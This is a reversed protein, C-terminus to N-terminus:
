RVRGERSVFVTEVAARRQFAISLNARAIGLGNIGFATSDRTARFSVGHLQGLARLQVTDRGRLIVASTDIAHFHVSTPRAGGIARARAVSLMTRTDRAANRVAIRDITSGTRPIAITVLISLTVMAILLEPLTAGRPHIVPM